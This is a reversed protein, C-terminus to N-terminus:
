EVALPEGHFGAYRAAEIGAIRGTTAGSGLSSGTSPYFGGWLFGVAEGAAFLGDIPQGHESLVRADPDIQVGAATIVVVANELAVACYPAENLKRLFEAPKGFRDVGREAGLNYQEVTARLVEPEFGLKEALEEITDGSLLRGEDSMRSLMEPNWNPSKREERGPYGKATGGFFSVHAAADPDFAQADFLAIVRGGRRRVQWDLVSYHANEPMFRRGEGDVLLLWGPIYTELDKTFSPTLLALGNGSGIVRAGIDSAFGLADGRSGPAGIYWTREGFQAVEPYYQELLESNAGFGGSAIVVARARIPEGDVVVGAVEGADGLLLKEVRQGLLIEVGQRACAQALADILGQGRGETVMCRPITEFSGKVPTEAFRVGARELWDVAPGSERALRRIVGADLSWANLNMYDLFMADASDEIGAARQVRTDAGVVIGESLRTSGGVVGEAECVAVEAGAERANLAASLGAVGSGIVLVDIDFVDPNEGM